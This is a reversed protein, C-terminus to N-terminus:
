NQTKRTRHNVIIREMVGVHFVVAEANLQVEERYIALAAELLKLRSYETKM